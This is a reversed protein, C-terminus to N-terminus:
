RVFHFTGGLEPVHFGLRVDRVGTRGYTSSTFMFAAIQDISALQTLWKSRDAPSAKRFVRPVLDKDPMFFVLKTLSGGIDVGFFGGIDLLKSVLTRSGLSFIRSSPGAPVHHPRRSRRMGLVLSAALAAVAAVGAAALSQAHSM